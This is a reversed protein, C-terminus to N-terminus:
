QKNLQGDQVATDSEAVPYICNKDVRIKVGDAVSVIFSTEEVKDVTGYIGGQTIVKAGKTLQARAEQIKKQKQNQPRIMFFYFIAFIAVMMIVMSWPNGGQQAQLLISNYM